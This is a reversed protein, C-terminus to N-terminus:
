ATKKRSSFEIQSLKNEIAKEVQDLYRNLSWEVIQSGARLRIGIPADNAQFYRIEFSKKLTENVIKKIQAKMSPPLEYSSEIIIENGAQKAAEVIKQLHENDLSKFRDCFRLVMQGELKSEALDFLASRCIDQVQKATQMRLEILFEDKEQALQKFWANRAQKVYERAENELSQHFVKAEQRAQGILDDRQNEIEAQKNRFTEAEKNADQQKKQAEKLRDEIRQERRRMAGVIPGYLFHQLLWILILFNIIQAAVTVWDIQM